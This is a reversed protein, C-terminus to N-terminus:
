RCVKCSNQKNQTIRLIKQQKFSTTFRSFNIEANNFTEFPTNGKLSRQPKDNNYIPVSEDLVKLLHSYYAINKPFLFQHKMVRNLAEVMSNSYVVDKQAIIHKIPYLVSNVYSFVTNNVNESGADTLFQLNQPKYKEYAEQLLSKIANANSSKEVRFGLIMKSYHDMLFHIYHKVGDATRFITVDACWLENPKTTKIPNYDDSKKRKPRNKFGLLRCYKYFTSLCCHLNDDRVAKLYVSSKSWFKYIENEMYTKIANVESILLQNPFKRVCWKFYSENCKHIVISKYNQYTTRSINFVRIANNISIVDKVSEISNVILEKNTKIANKVGNVKSIIENFTDCLKFYNENLNKLNNTQGIRKYLNLEKKVFNTIECGVYKKSDEYLWRNINSTSLQKRLDLPLSSLLGSRVFHKVNTDWSKRAINM